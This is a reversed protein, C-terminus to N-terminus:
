KKELLFMEDVNADTLYKYRERKVMKLDPFLELYKKVFDGKWLRDKNGRYEVGIYEDNFYEFGWIYRGSVRYIEKMAKDLNVPSIHILVGSTFVLDFTREGFPIEFANGEVIEVGKLRKKALEVAMKNIEVGYLNKYGKAQLLSLQNGESCGIELINKIELGGLFERNMESRSVGFKQRYSEDLEENTLSNRKIYENGFESEWFNEQITKSM